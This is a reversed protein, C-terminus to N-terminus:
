FLKLSSSFQSFVQFIFLVLLVFLIKRRSEYVESFKEEKGSKGYLLYVILNVNLFLFFTEWNVYPLSKDEWIFVSVGYLIGPILYVLAKWSILGERNTYDEIELKTIRSIDQAFLHSNELNVFSVAKDEWELVVRPYSKYKDESIKELDSLDYEATEEERDFQVVKNGKIMIAIGSLMAVQRRFSRYLFLGLLASMPLFLTLFEQRDERPIQLFNWVLFLSFFGLVLAFRLILKKKYRGIDYRYFKEM